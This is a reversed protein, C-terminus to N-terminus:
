LYGAGAYAVAVPASRLTVPVGLQPAAALAARAHDLSHFVNVRATM